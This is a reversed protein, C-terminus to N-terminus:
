TVKFIWDDDLIKKYKNNQALELNDNDYNISSVGNINDEHLGIMGFDPDIEKFKEFNNLLIESIYETLVFKNHKHKSFFSNNYLPSVSFGKIHYKSVKELLKEYIVDLM